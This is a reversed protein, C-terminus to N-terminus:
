ETERIRLINWTEPSFINWQGECSCGWPLVRFRYVRKVKKKGARLYSLSRRPTIQVTKDQSIHWSDHKTFRVHHESQLVHSLDDTWLCGVQGACARAGYLEIGKVPIFFSEWNAVNKSWLYNGWCSKHKIENQPFFIDVISLHYHNCSCNM